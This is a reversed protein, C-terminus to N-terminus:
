QIVKAQNRLLDVLQAAAAQADKGDIMTRLRERVQVEAGLYKLKPKVAFTELPERRIEKRKAKMLNPLTPYRPENLGQQTTVVAPLPVSFSERGADVDHKGLLQAGDLSLANTWTAQPWGLREATAAGLAHSDWDAQQGGCFILEVSEARAVQAVISSIAIVDLPEDAEVLIGRDAGMALASRVSEECRPPGIALVVVEIVPSAERMRLAQEVGYEDMTDVVLKSSSLDVAGDKVKVSEEANLVQRIVTLIRVETEKHNSRLAQNVCSSPLESLKQHM